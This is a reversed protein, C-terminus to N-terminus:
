LGNPQRGDKLHEDLWDLLRDRLAADFFGDTHQGGPVTWFEAGPPSSAALRKSHGHPIVMDQTGHLYLTPVHPLTAAATGPSFRNSIILWSLPTRVLSLVPILAIKDRVIERYGFFASDIVVVRVGDVPERGLVAVANAGGLSQGIVVLPLEAESALRSALQLAAHTDEYVGKRNPSGASNGYGRYDMTMVHYGAAPLWRVFEFHDGMNQANGHLHLVLGKVPPSPSEVWWGTLATGDASSFDLERYALGRDAPTQRVTKTPYYFMRSVCGPIIMIFALVVTLRVLNRKSRSRLTPMRKRTPVHM